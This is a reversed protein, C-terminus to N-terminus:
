AGEGSPCELDAGWLAFRDPGHLMSEIRLQELAPLARCAVVDAGEYSGELDLETLRPLPVPYSLVSYCHGRLVKLSRMLPFAERPLPAGSAVSLEEVTALEVGRSLDIAAPTIGLRCARVFGRHFELGEKRVAPALSGTWEQGHAAVLERCRKTVERTAKGTRLQLSILEGRPDGASLLLDALVARPSDADPDAYVAAFLATSDPREVVVPAQVTAAREQLRKILPPLGARFLTDAHCSINAEVQALVAQLRPLQRVDEIEDLVRLVVAWFGDTPQGQFGSPRKEIWGALAEALRPDRGKAHLLPLRYEVSRRGFPLLADVLRPLDRPDYKKLRKDWEAQRTAITTGDLKERGDRRAAHSLADLEAATRPSGDSRWAELLAELSAM